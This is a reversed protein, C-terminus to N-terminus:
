HNGHTSISIIIKGNRDLGELNNERVTWEAKSYITGNVTPYAWVAHSIPAPSSDEIEYIAYFSFRRGSSVCAFVKENLWFVQRTVPIELPCIGGPCYQFLYLTEGNKQLAAVESEMDPRRLIEIRAGTQDPLSIIGTQSVESPVVKVVEKTTEAEGANLRFSAILLYAMIIIRKM